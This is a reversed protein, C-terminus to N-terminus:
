TPALTTVKAHYSSDGCDTWDLKLAGGEVNGDYHKKHDSEFKLWQAEYDTAPATQISVCLAKDGNSAKATLDIDLKAVKAPIAAALSVDLDLEASGASLPCKFGKMDIEGVGLPLKIVESKCADGM